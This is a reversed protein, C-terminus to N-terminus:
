KAKCNQQHAYPAALQWEIGVEELAKMFEVSIFERGNDSHFVKVKCEVHNEWLSKIIQWADLAQDKTALLQVNLLHTHDHLFVIFYLKVHPTCIPFPGCLDSHILDLM